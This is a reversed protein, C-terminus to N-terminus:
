GKGTQDGIGERVGTMTVAVGIMRVTGSVPVAVGTIEGVDVTEGVLLSIGDSVGLKVGATGVV